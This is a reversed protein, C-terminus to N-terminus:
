CTLIKAFKKEIHASNPDFVRALCRKEFAGLKSSSGLKSQCIFRIKSNETAESFIVKKMKVIYFEKM